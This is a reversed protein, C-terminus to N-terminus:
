ADAEEANIRETLEELTPVRREAKKEQIGIDKCYARFQRLLASYVRAMHGSIPKGTAIAKDFQRLRVWIRAAEGVLLQQAASPRGGLQDFLAQEARKVAMWETTNAYTADIAVNKLLKANPGLTRRRIRARQKARAQEDPSRLAGDCAAVHWRYGRRVERGCKPCHFDEVPQAIDAATALMRKANESHRWHRQSPSLEPATVVDGNTVRATSRKAAASKTRKKM